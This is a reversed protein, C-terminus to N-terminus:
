GSEEQQCRRTTLKVVGVVECALCAFSQPDRGQSTTGVADIRRHRVAGITVGLAPFVGSLLLATVATMGASRLVKYTVLPAAVDFIVIMTISRLQGGKAATTGDTRRADSSTDM